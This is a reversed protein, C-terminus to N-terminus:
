HNTAVLTKISYNPKRLECVYTNNRAAAGVSRTPRGEKYM